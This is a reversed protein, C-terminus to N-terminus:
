KKKEVDNALSIISSKLAEIKVDKSIEVEIIGNDNVKVIKGIIGGAIVIKDGKKVSDILTHLEKQKKSQPRIIFFYFIVFILVLPVFSMFSNQTTEQATEAVEQAYAYNMLM